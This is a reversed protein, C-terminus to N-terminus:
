SRLLARARRLQMRAWHSSRPNLYTLFLLALAEVTPRCRLSQGIRRRADRNRGAGFLKAAVAYHHLSEARRELGCARLEPRRKEIAIGRYYEFREVSGRQISGERLQVTALPEAISAIKYRSVIRTWLDWDGFARVSSDYGGVADFATRRVVVTSTALRDQCLIEHYDNAKRHAPRLRSEGSPFVDIVAGHVLAVDPRERLLKVQRSLKGPVWEDDDDIFALLEGKSSEIAHTRAAYLGANAKMSLPVLRPDTVSGVVSSTADTSGDDVVVLEFNTYDQRLVSQIANLIRGGGNYTSLIVSVLPEEQAHTAGPKMWSSQSTM